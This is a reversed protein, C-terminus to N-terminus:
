PKLGPSIRFITSCFTGDILSIVPGKVTKKKPKNLSYGHGLKEYISIKYHDKGICDNVVAVHSTEIKLLFNALLSKM